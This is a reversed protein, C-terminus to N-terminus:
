IDNVDITREFCIILDNKRVNNKAVLKIYTENFRRFNIISECFVPITVYLSGDITEVDIASGFSIDPFEGQLLGNDLNEVLTDYYLHGELHMFTSPNSLYDKYDKINYKKM